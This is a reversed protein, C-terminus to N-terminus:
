SDFFCNKVEYGPHAELWSDVDELKPMEEEPLMEGTAVDRIHLRIESSENGEQLKEKARQERREKRKRRKETAQHQKVLGTLSEVYEDTQQLLFVLRKDKKEDLLQRYGEEDEQMLKQMRMRENRLEDKKRERESNAHYTLVAKKVKSLKVEGFHEPPFGQIGQWAAFYGAVIRQTEPTSPAGASIRVIIADSM